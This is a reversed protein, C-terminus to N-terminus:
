SEPGHGRARGGENRPGNPRRRQCLRIGVLDGVPARADVLRGVM